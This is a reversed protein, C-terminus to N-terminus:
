GRSDDSPSLPPQQQQQPELPEQGFRSPPRSTSFKGPAIHTNPLSAFEMDNTNKYTQRCYKYAHVNSQAIAM